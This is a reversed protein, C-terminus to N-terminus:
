ILKIGPAINIFIKELIQLNEKVNLLCQLHVFKASENNETQLVLSLLQKSCAKLDCITYLVNKYMWLDYRTIHRTWCIVSSIQKNSFFITSYYNLFTVCYKFKAHSHRSGVFKQLVVSINYVVMCRTWNTVRVTRAIQRMVPIHLSLCLKNIQHM